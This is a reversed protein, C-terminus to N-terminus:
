GRQQAGIANELACQMRAIMSLDLSLYQLIKQSCQPSPRPMPVLCDDGPAFRVLYQWAEHWALKYHHFSCPSILMTFDCQRPAGASILKGAACGHVAKGWPKEDVRKDGGLRHVAIDVGSGCATVLVDVAKWCCIESMAGSFKSGMESM